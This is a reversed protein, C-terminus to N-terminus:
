ARRHLQQRSRCNKVVQDLQQLPRNLTGGSLMIGRDGMGMMQEDPVNNTLTITAKHTHPKAETGIQLEGHLMIWEISLELDADDAFTLKGSITIGGLAPTSVDLIVDKGSAITVQEGAAPVKNDPWTAPDSWLSGQAYSHASLLACLPLALSIVPFRSKMKM